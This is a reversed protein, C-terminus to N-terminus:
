RRKPKQERRQTPQRPVDKKMDTLQNFEHATLYLGHCVKSGVFQTDAVLSAMAAAREVTNVGINEVGNILEFHLHPPSDVGVRYEAINGKTGPQGDEFYL